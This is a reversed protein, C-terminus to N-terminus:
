REVAQKYSKIGEAIAQAMKKRYAATFIKKGETPHSLFGAEILVAPMTAERLVEFRARRVGRDTAGLTRVLSRQVLGALLLNRGDNCNGAYARSGAGEGRANTSAAGAPTMAYVESGQAASRDGGTGNFHLSVFLDAGYKRALAPRDSLEIYRDETRSFVVKFGMKRLEDRLEAALRLTLDKEQKGSAQNGPDKGGHGADLCITVVKKGPDYKPVSLFPRFTAEVDLQSIYTEGDRTALPHLLWLQLGNFRAERSDVTFQLQVTKNTLLFSEDRKLWRAQLGQLRAWETVRVYDTDRIRVRLSAAQGPWAGLLMALTALALRCMM